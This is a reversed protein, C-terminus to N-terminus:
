EPADRPRALRARVFDPAPRHPLPTVAVAALAEVLATLTEGRRDQEAMMVITRRRPLPLAYLTARPGADGRRLALDPMIAAGLGHEVFALACEYSPARAVVAAGPLARGHWDAIQDAHASGLALRIARQLPGGEPEGLALDPVETPVVLHQADRAVEVAHLGAALPTEAAYGSVLAADIERAEIRGIAERPKMESVDFLVGGGMGPGMEAGMRAFAPVLLNRALSPLTGVALRRRRGRTRERLGEHARDAAALIARAEEALYEGAATLRMEAGSFRLLKGGVVAEMRAVQQSVSPQRVRLRRAARTMSGERALVVFLRLQRLTLEDGLGREGGVPGARPSPSRAADAPRM